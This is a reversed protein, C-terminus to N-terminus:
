GNSDPNSRVRRGARRSCGNNQFRDLITNTLEMDSKNWLPTGASNTLRTQSVISRALQCVKWTSVLRELKIRSKRFRRYPAPDTGDCIQNPTEFSSREFIERRACKRAAGEPIRKKDTSGNIAGTPLNSRLPIDHTMTPPSLPGRARGTSRWYTRSTRSPRCDKSLIMLTLPLSTIWITMFIMGKSSRERTIMKPKRSVPATFPNAAKTEGANVLNPILGPSIRGVIVLYRAPLVAKTPTILSIAFCPSSVAAATLLHAPNNNCGSSTGPTAIRIDAPARRPLFQKGAITPPHKPIAIRLMPVM